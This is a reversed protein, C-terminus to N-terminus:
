KRIRAEIIKEIVQKRQELDNNGLEAYSLFQRLENISNFHHSLKVFHYIIQDVLNKLLFYIPDIDDPIVGSHVLLNRQDTVIEIVDKQIQNPNILTKTRSKILHNKIDKEGLSVSYELVRWMALYAIEANSMDLAKQYQKLISILYSNLDNNNKLNSYISMLYEITKLRDKPIKIASYSYDGLTYYIKIFKRDQNFVAYIPTPLVKSLEKPKTRFYTYRLLSFSTNIFARLFDIKENAADVAAEIDYTYIEFLIPAFTITKPILKEGSKIFLDQNENERELQKLLDCINFESLNNWNCFRLSDDFIPLNSLNTVSQYDLNLFTLVFYNTRKKQIQRLEINYARFFLRVPDKGNKYKEYKVFRRVAKYIAKRKTREPIQDEDDMYAILIEFAANIDPSRMFSVIKHENETSCEVLYEISRKIVLNKQNENSIM